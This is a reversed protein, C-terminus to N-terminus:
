GPGWQDQKHCHPARYSLIICLWQHMQDFLSSLSATVLTTFLSSSTCVPSPPVSSSSTILRRIIETKIIHPNQWLHSSRWWMHAPIPCDQGKMPVSLILNLNVASGSFRSSIFFLDYYHDLNHKNNVYHDTCVPTQANATSLNRCLLSCNVGM